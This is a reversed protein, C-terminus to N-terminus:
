QSFYNRAATSIRRKRLLLKIREASLLFMCTSTLSALGECRSPFVLPNKKTKELLLDIHEFPL